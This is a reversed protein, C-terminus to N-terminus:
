DDKTFQYYTGVKAMLLPPIKYETTVVRKFKSGKNRKAFIFMKDGELEM